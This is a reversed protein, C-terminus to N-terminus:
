YLLSAMRRRYQGVRPDDGLLDFIKLLNNRGADDGYARDKKMLELLLEMAADYDRSVVKRLALQLRAESDDADNTLRAELEAAEPQRDLPVQPPVLAIPAVAGVLRLVLQM